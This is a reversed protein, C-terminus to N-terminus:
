EEEANISAWGLRIAQLAASTRNDVGMKRYISRLRNAVTQSSLHLQNAIDQNDNGRAVLKLVQLEGETLPNAASPDSNALNLRRFEDLFAPTVVPDVYAEGRCTARVAEILVEADTNKLLYGKAGAKIAEFAYRDQRYMTLILVRARPDNQLIRSTAQIGDLLPMNIDMLIVDPKMERALRVAQNGNDAEGVVQFGGKIECIQRLGQRFLRHDDALLVRIREHQCTNSSM